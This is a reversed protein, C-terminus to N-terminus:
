GGQSQLHIHIKNFITSLPATVQYPVTAAISVAIFGVLLAYEVLEQAENNQKSGPLFLLAIQQGLARLSSVKNRTM